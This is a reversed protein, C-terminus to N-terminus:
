RTSQVLTEMRGSTWYRRSYSAELENLIDNASMEHDGRLFAQLNAIQRSEDYLSAILELTLEEANMLIELLFGPANRARNIEEHASLLM